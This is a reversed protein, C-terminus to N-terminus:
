LSIRRRKMEMQLFVQLVDPIARGKPAFWANITQIGYKKHTLDNMAEGLQIRTMGLVRLAQRAESKSLATCSTRIKHHKEKDRKQKPLISPWSILSELIEVDVQVRDLFCIVSATKFKIWEGKMRYKRFVHHAAREVLSANEFEKSYRIKLPYPCATQLQALRLEPDM